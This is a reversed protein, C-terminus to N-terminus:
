QSRLMRLAGIQGMLPPILNRFLNLYPDTVQRLTVWPQGMWDVNPFWTLLVRVFLLLLYLKIFSAVASTILPLTASATSSSIAAFVPVVSAGLKMRQQLTAGEAAAQAMSATFSAGLRQATLLAL